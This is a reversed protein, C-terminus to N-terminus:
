GHAVAMAEHAVMAADFVSAAMAMLHGADGADGAVPNLLVPAHEGGPLAALLADINPVGAHGLAEAVVQAAQANPAAEHAAVLAAANGDFVPLNVAQALLGQHDDLAPQAQGDDNAAHVPADDGGSLTAHDPAADDSGSHSAREVPQDAAHSDQSESSVSTSADGENAPEPATSTTAAPATDVTTEAQAVVPAPAQEVTEAAGAVAVLSAAILAQNFGSTTSETKALDVDKSTAFVVDGVTGTTGDTRTFTAEGLVTVDGGAAQYSQGDSTLKISAIGMDALSKFEGGDVVGNSNLDQWVGFESYAADHADFVGDGNGDYALRLGELDSKAGPADDAFVIDYSGGTAHALLGDDSSVWATSVAGSGYDHTVGLSRDVFELGDGDLDIAVPPVPAGGQFTVDITTTPTTSTVIDGDADKVTVAFQLVRDDPIVQQTVSFNEVRAAPNGSESYDFRVVMHDFDLTPDIDVHTIGDADKTVLFTGTQLPVSGATPTGGAYTAWSVTVTSTNPQFNVDFSLSSSDPNSFLFGENDNVLNNAVGFGNGSPNITSGDNTFAQATTTGSGYSVGDFVQGGPLTVTTYNGPAINSFSLPTDIVPRTTLVDVTYDGTVQDVSVTFYPTGNVSATVTGTGDGTYVIGTIDTLHTLTISGAEDAGYTFNIDNGSYTHISNAVSLDTVSSLTPVDDVISVVISGPTADSDGTADTVTMSITDTLPNIEGQGSHTLAHDLTYSYGYTVVGNVDPASISTITLVGKSTVVQDGVATITMPNADGDLTLTYSEGNANVTFQGTTDTESAAGHQLGDALGDEYVTSTDGTVDPVRGDQNLSIVLQALDTDGDGDKIQYTFTESTVGAPISATKLTYTYSGDSKILLDGYTGSITTGAASVGTLAGGGAETGVRAGTVAGGPAAGDAGITDATGDTSNADTGGVGTFVNGDAKNGLGETVSDADNVAHPADDVIRVILTDSGSTGSIGTVSVTVSDDFETLTAGTKSDNDITALLTYSYSVAGTAANYGTLLLTGEGTNVVGNTTGFAQMQALTFSTGGVTISAIGDTASVTFSGSTVHSGDHATGSPLGAEYVTADPGTAAATVVSASDDAGKVTITLTAPSQDGDADQMTYHLTFDQSFGSGLAQTAARSNDLVYSWSGDSNQVLTGYSNLQAVVAADAGWAVFSKPTDAGSVDNTLVNGSLSGAVDETLTGGADNVAHPADDVIRVILTDSGSTGSIGTVSVTVSDDFETLTAGAKSDNDITALLTYSYSVAGTAANYGTLLLTGEGTNVVGNTTGFAQMQALTFSTGGVTISAIGDTASVTFSGSTVHSGDHATGSPLGAEYVTADPGTAAATVVSASDDAGKVTITLTAPSQDGDADQMTYHLTFDQSFGSGLAQTAARSNDLVYSWSGDSNQVLTGYSNLQAVVAADAGWAVFSKPTDAGSVDNTLVNGSLSGAVDETLTGGADNVAHPADDVIRVILTDSGSTGSIGTVSVTVSDDFETLTAGTKSDNDITALLTYSYSVAGTAANYGTLLLTGEGTNVVGNTTGFAQMQALTFSTGGVTISAIGDTASVTFSGSTVHSGDHATGSPLGAEYVTADPGTAAATVVSASDDAGKVTITLTAPSQDGDADQMTYHLTFDQSFGSGLAQTAARSNDLVYSWSGDSNQVLTGYSNLQAVVAADAGWAVFSKPTDAGSVDNTLVNGSLSGAVDETLTGGADNVAHPADDVIRVILTDSGSTGSIGTVSVTVSDDFETLTAGAKSDNDITALLTYSYSVAGTAANYGTLLLTGEGTNVVGNTTGFAQMQALTFSTGGVTISAIGDTASVTFSGSTVHSGDHATGSPLGAEYVTADPGTAAATVVSASDDAGKVTITLTAPSQDGDADQMTYHLTFDQSFGSGLAQTAARSNDLVYSWSGDSNQVLTGYSNLQAVVAADAGWAVFSKPTDAGSVDNTLVNGSLSGAVDETLTGGADNVAHPADDVIRVILTDSGSTGSIGTVSVTVSDDFETLTAGAKSDNDITALLTYSYSVAGTAANYGTLLLTGEGTNVVGNTTGFAQMQALTFSTGGVTISAIGDTASVTFSGSTVHSGDHATGSPLGAEYVTADPGTAAATVVSASDDAGKVTITLTAPSQDGDADQMTYHLTFDQSFGSGLAQTAARSNDLVYSWSGDSNQVLTGYSNLQAVVAADAGWAVFSKPTDAGSVDNSLVNGSLSNTAADEVVVNGVDDIAHPQDDVIGITLTTGATDGDSDTVAVAFSDKTNDGSTATELTYSYSYGSAPSGTVTLTGFSGQVTGGNTVDVNNIVLSGVTDNGTTVILTGAATEATSEANSGNPNLASEDVQTDSGAQVEVTPTSDPELTVTVTAQSTDGDGDQIQYVFTATGEQGAAPTFTFLGTAPDYAVAGEAPGSVITVRVAPNNDIDVGDAGFVDNTFANIVVPAGEAGQHALDDHATPVDDIVNVVLAKTVSDGDADTVTVTFNDTVTDGSTNDALTYSYEIAGPAVSTITLTGHAGVITQGPGTVVQGNISITAPTDVAVYTITGATTEVPAPENSGPSGGPRNVTGLGSEDVVTGPGSTPVELEPVHDEEPAIPLIERQEPQTFALETPPLLDGLGHPNGVDGEAALFNGGSSRAPGAAPQPEEGILLAALNVSPIEVDGVIIHPMVVAGDLIVMQTGDPLTVILNRGDVEIQNIDTGAPLVVVGDPGAAATRMTGPQIHHGKVRAALADLVPDHAQQRDAAADVNWEREFDM